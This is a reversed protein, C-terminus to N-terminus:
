PARHPSSYFSVFALNIISRVNMRITFVQFNMLLLGESQIATSDDDHLAVQRLPRAGM